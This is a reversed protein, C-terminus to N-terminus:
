LFLHILNSYLSRSRSSLICSALVDNPSTYKTFWRMQEPFNKVSPVAARTRKVVRPTTKNCRLWRANRRRRWAARRRRDWTTPEATDPAARTACCRSARRDEAGSRRTWRVATIVRVVRNPTGLWARRRARCGASKPTRGRRCRTGAADARGASRTSRPTTRRGGHARVM